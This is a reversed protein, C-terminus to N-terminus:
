ECCAAGRDKFDEVGRALAEQFRLGDDIGVPGAAVVDTGRTVALDSRAGGEIALDLYPV